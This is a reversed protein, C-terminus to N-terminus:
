IDFLEIRDMSLVRDPAVVELWLPGPLSPLSLISRIGWLELVLAERISQKINYGPCEYTPDQREATICNTYVVAGVSQAECFQIDSSQFLVFLWSTVRLDDDDDHRVVLAPRGSRRVGDTEITWRKRYTKLAVDQIPM